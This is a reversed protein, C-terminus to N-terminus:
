TKVTIPFLCTSKKSHKFIHTNKKFLSIKGTRHYTVIKKTATVPTKSYVKFKLSVHMQALGLEQKM